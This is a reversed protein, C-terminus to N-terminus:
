EDGVAQGIESNKDVGKGAINGLSAGNGDKVDYLEGYTGYVFRYIVEGGKESVAM